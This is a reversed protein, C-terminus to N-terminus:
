NGTYKDLFGLKKAFKNMTARVKKPDTNKLRDLCKFYRYALTEEEESFKRGKLILKFPKERKLFEKKTKDIQKEIRSAYFRYFAARNKLHPERSVVPMVYAETFEVLPTSYDSFSRSIDLFFIDHPFGHRNETVIEDGSDIFPNGQKTTRGCMWNAAYAKALLVALRDQYGPIEYKSIPIKNTAYGPIYDRELYPLPVEEGEIIEYIEAIRFPAVNMGLEESAAYKDRLQILQ